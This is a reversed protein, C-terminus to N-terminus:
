KRVEQLLVVRSLPGPDTSRTRSILMAPGLCMGSRTLPANSPWRSALVV